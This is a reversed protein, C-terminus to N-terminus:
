RLREWLLERHPRNDRNWRQLIQDVRVDFLGGITFNEVHGDCFAVNWRGHHRRRLYDAGRAFTGELEHAMQSWQGIQLVICIEEIYSPGLDLEPGGVIKWDTWDAPAAIKADGVAIMESPAVVESERILRLNEPLIGTDSWDDRLVVGGLGLERKPLGAVGTWNYGYSGAVRGAMLGRLRAYSPCVDVGQPMPEWPRASWRQWKAGVYRELREHWWGEGEHGSEGSDNMRSPPYVRFDDVYMTLGMGWQRLNSKCVASHASEKARSLAPLLLSALSAIIAIVGLAQDPHLGFSGAVPYQSNLEHRDHPDVGGKYSSGELGGWWWDTSDGHLRRLSM